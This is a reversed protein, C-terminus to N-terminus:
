NIEIVQANTLKLLDKSLINFVANPAGAAAWVENFKLLKEDFFVLEIVQSHGIPSVGGIAYGSVEKTFQADAKVISEGCHVALKHENVQNSGSALVLVPRLSETTKFILSKVIQAKDCKITSAAEQATRTSHPLELVRCNLGQQELFEQVKQASKSLQHTM